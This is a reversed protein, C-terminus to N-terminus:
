LKGLPDIHTNMEQLSVFEMTPPRRIPHRPQHKSCSCKNFVRCLKHQIKYPVILRYIQNEEHYAEHIFQIESVQESGNFDLEHPFIEFKNLLTKEDKSM